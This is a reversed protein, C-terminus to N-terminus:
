RDIARFDSHQKCPLPDKAGGGWVRVCVACQQAGEYRAGCVLLLKPGHETGAAHCTAHKRPVSTHPTSCPTCAHALPLRVNNVALQCCCKNVGYRGIVAPRPVAHSWVAATATTFQLGFHASLHKIGWWVCGVGSFGQILLWCAAQYGATDRRGRLTFMM